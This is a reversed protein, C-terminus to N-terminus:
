GNGNGTRRKSQETMSTGMHFGVVQVALTGLVGCLYNLIDHYNSAIPAIFRLLFVSCLFGAIILYSIVIQVNTRTAENTKQLMLQQELGEYASQRIRGYVGWIKIKADSDMKIVQNLLRASLSNTKFADALRKLTIKDPDDVLYQHIEPVLFSVTDLLDKRDAETEPYTEPTSTKTHIEDM